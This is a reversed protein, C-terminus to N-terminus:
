VGQLVFKAYNFFYVYTTISIANSRLAPNLKRCNSDYETGKSRGRQSIGSLHLTINFNTNTDPRFSKNPFNNIQSLKNIDLSSLSQKSSDPRKTKCASKAFQSSFTLEQRHQSHVTFHIDRELDFKEIQKKTPGYDKNFAVQTKAFGRNDVINNNLGEIKTFISASKLLDQEVFM